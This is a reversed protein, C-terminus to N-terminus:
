KEWVLKGKNTKWAEILFDDGLYVQLKKLQAVIDECKVMEYRAVRIFYTEEM